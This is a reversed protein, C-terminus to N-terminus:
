INVKTHRSVKVSNEDFENDGQQQAQLLKTLLDLFALRNSVAKGTLFSLWDSNGDVKRAELWSTTM